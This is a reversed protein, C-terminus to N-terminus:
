RGDRASRAPDLGQKLLQGHCRRRRRLRRPRGATRSTCERRSGLLHRSDRHRAGRLRPHHARCDRRPQRDSRTQVHSFGEQIVTNRYCINYGAALELDAKIKDCAGRFHLIGEHFGRPIQPIIFHIEVMCELFTTLSQSVNDCLFELQQRVAGADVDHLIRRAADDVDALRDDELVAHALVELVVLVMRRLDPRHDRVDRIKLDDHRM